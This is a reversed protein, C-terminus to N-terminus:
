SVDAESGQQVPELEQSKRLFVPLVAAPGVQLGKKHAHLFAVSEALDQAVDM